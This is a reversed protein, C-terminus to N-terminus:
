GITFAREHWDRGTYDPMDREGYKGPHEMIEHTHGHETAATM